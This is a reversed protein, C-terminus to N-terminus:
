VFATKLIIKKFCSTSISCFLFYVVYVEFEHFYSPLLDTNALMTIDPGSGHWTCLEVGTCVVGTCVITSIYCYDTDSKWQYCRVFKTQRTGRIKDILLTIM